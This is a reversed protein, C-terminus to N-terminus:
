KEDDIGAPLDLDDWDLMALRGISDEMALRKVATQAKGGAYDDWRKALTTVIDYATVEATKGVAIDYELLESCERWVAAPIKAKRAARIMAPVPYRLETQILWDLRALAKQFGALLSDELKAVNKEWDKKDGKHVLKFPATFAIPRDGNLRVIPRITAASTGVDATFIQVLPMAPVEEGAVEVSKKSDPLQFTAWSFGQTLGGSLYEVTGFTEQLMEISKAFFQEPCIDTYQDSQMATIKGHRTLVTVQKKQMSALLLNAVRCYLAQDTGNGMRLASLATALVSDLGTKATGRLACDGGATRVALNAHAMTDEMAEIDIEADGAPIVRFANGPAQEWCSASAVEALANCLEDINQPSQEWEDRITNPNAPSVERVERTATDSVTAEGFLNGAYDYGTNYNETNYNKSM